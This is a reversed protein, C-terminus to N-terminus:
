SVPPPPEWAYGLRAMVPEVISRVRELGEAGSRARWAEARQPDCEEVLKEAFSASAALRGFRELEAAVGAPDGVLDDYPLELWQAAPMRRRFELVPEITYRWQKALVTLRDDERVWRQWGPPRPGWFAMERGLLRRGLTRWARPLLAPWEWVPTGLLRRLYWEREPRRTRTVLDTSSIVARADRHIHVFLADPFIAHIFELRLCNSPTKEALRPRGAAALFRQFSRRVRERVRPTADAATLSDDRRYNYGRSWVQRPEECYALEPHNGLARGLLTTGSRHTGIVFIPAEIAIDPTRTM